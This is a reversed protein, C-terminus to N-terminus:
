GHRSVRHAGCVTYILRETVGPAFQHLADEYLGYQGCVGCALESATKPLAGDHPTTLLAMLLRGVIVNLFADTAAPEVVEYQVVSRRARFTGPSPYHYGHGGTHAPTGVRAM